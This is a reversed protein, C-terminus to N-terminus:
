SSAKRGFFIIKDESLKNFLEENKVIEGKAFEDEIITAIYYFSSGWFVCLGFFNGYDDLHFGYDHWYWGLYFICYAYIWKIIKRMELFTSLYCFAIGFLLYWNSYKYAVLPVLILPAIMYALVSINFIVKGFGKLFIQENSFLPSFEFRLTKDYKIIEMYEAHTMGHIIEIDKKNDTM